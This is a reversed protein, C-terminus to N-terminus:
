MKKNTGKHLGILNSCESISIIKECMACKIGSQCKLKDQSAHKFCFLDWVTAWQSAYM